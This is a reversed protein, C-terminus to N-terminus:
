DALALRIFGSQGAPMAVTVTGSEGTGFVSPTNNNRTLPLWQGNALSTSFELRVPARLGSPPLELQLSGNGPNFSVPPSWPGSAANFAYLLVLPQGTAAHIDTLGVPTQGRAALAWSAYTEGPVTVEGTASFSGVETINVTGNIVEAPETRTENRTHIFDIRYRAKYGLDQLLSSTVTTVGVLPNTDPRTALDRLESQFTVGGVIHRTFITGRNQQIFHGSNTLVGTGPSIAGASSNSTMASVINRTEIRVKAVFPSTFLIAESNTDSYAINGGLFKFKSLTGGTFEVDGTLNGTIQIATPGTSQGSSLQYNVTFAGGANITLPVPASISVLQLIHSFVCVLLPRQMAVESASDERISLSPIARKVSQRFM